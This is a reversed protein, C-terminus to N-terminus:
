ANTLQSKDWEKRLANKDVKGTKGVPLELCFIVASPIKFKALHTTAHAVVTKQDLIAGPRKVVYAIPTEGYIKDPVGIVAVSAV